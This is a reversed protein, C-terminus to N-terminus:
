VLDTGLPVRQRPSRALLLLPLMVLAAIALLRLTDLYALQAAQRQIEQYTIALARRGAEVTSAGGQELASVRRGRM